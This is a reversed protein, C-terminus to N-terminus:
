LPRRIGRPGPTRQRVHNATPAPAGSAHHTVTAESDEAAHVVVGSGQRRALRQLYEVAVVVSIRVPLRQRVHVDRPFTSRARSDGPADDDDSTTIAFRTFDVVLSATPPEPKRAVYGALVVEVPHSARHQQLQAHMSPVNRHTQIVSRAHASTYQLQLVHRHLSSRTMWSHSSASENPTQVSANSPLPLPSRRRPNRTSSTHTAV